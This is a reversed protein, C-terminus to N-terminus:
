LSVFYKLIKPEKQPAPLRPTVTNTHIAPAPNCTPSLLTDPSQLQQESLFLIWVVYLFDRKVSHNKKVVQSKLFYYKHSWLFGTKSTTHNAQMNIATAWLLVRTNPSCQLWIWNLNVQRRRSLALASWSLKKRVKARSSIAKAEQKHRTNATSVSNYQWACIGFTSLKTQFLWVLVSNEWLDSHM